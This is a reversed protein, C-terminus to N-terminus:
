NVQYLHSESKPGTVKSPLARSKNCPPRDMVQMMSVEGHHRRFIRSLTLINNFILNDDLLTSHTGACSIITELLGMQSATVRSIMRCWSALVVDHPCYAFFRANLEAIM